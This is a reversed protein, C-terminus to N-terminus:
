KESKDAITNFLADMPVHLCQHLKSLLEVTPTVKGKEIRNIHYRTFGGLLEGFENQSVGLALRLKCIFDCLKRKEEMIDSYRAGTLGTYSSHCSSPLGRM